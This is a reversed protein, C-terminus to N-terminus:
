KPAFICLIGCPMVPLGTRDGGSGLAARATGHAPQAPPAAPLVSLELEGKHRQVAVATCPPSLINLSAKLGGTDRGLTQLNRKPKKMVSSSRMYDFRLLSKRGGSFHIRVRRGGREGGCIVRAKPWAACRSLEKEGIEKQARCHQIERTLATTNIGNTGIAVDGASECARLNM